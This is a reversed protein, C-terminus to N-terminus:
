DSDGGESSQGGFIWIFFFLATFGAVTIGILTTRKSFHNQNLRNAEAQLSDNKKRKIM